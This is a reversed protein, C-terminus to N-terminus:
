KRARSAPRDAWKKKMREAAGRKAASMKARAEPTHKWGSSYVNGKHAASLKSRTEASRVYGRPAVAATSLNYLGSAAFRDMWHQERDTLAEPACTEVIEFAIADVGDRDHARQLRICHHKGRRLASKHAKFRQEIQKSQGVYRRGSTKHRVIYIGCTKM